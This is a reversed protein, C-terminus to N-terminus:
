QLKTQTHRVRINIFYFQFATYLSFSSYGKFDDVYTEFYCFEPISFLSDTYVNFPFTSPVSALSIGHTLHATSPTTTRIRVCHRFNQHPLSGVAGISATRMHKRDELCIQRFNAFKGGGGGGLENVSNGGSYLCISIQKGFLEQVM